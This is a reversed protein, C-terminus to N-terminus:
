VGALVATDVGEDGEVGVAGVEGVEDVGGECVERGTITTHGDGVDMPPGWIEDGDGAAWAHAGVERGTEVGGLADGDGQLDRKNANVM